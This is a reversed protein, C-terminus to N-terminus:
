FGIIIIKLKVDELLVFMVVKVLIWVFEVRNFGEDLVDIMVLEIIEINSIM